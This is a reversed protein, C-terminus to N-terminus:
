WLGLRVRLTNNADYVLLVTDKIELRAGSQASKFHGINASLASLNGISAKNIKAVDISGNQIYASNLYTGAPVNVGNVNQPSTYVTFLKRNNNPNGIYFQDANIGFRSTIRGNQLESILGYGSIVGNNDVTIAKVAKIGDISRTQETIKSSQNNLNTQLETTKTAETTIRGNVRDVTTKLDNLATASAKNAVDSSSPTQEWVLWRNDTWLRTYINSAHNDAWVTQKIRANNAKDVSVYIWNIVPANPNNSQKIFYNGQEKLNNLDTVTTIEKWKTRNDVSDLSAQLQTFKQSSANDKTTQTQKFSNLSADVSEILINTDEPAPSWDTAVNGRELKIHKYNVDATSGYELILSLFDKNALDPVTLTTSYRHYNTNVHVTAKTQVFGGSIRYCRIIVLIDTTTNAFADFSVTVKDGAQLEKLVPNTNKNAQTGEKSNQAVSKWQSGGNPRVKIENGESIANSVNNGFFSYWSTQGTGLKPESTQLLLNRGGVSLNSFKSNLETKALSLASNVDSVTREIQNLKGSTTSNATSFDSNLRTLRESLANDANSRAQQEATLASDSSRKNTNVKDDVQRYSATLTNIQQALSQEKNNLTQTLSTIKSNAEQKVANDASKYASTLEALKTTLAQEHNSLSNSLNNINSNASSLGTNFQNTLELKVTSISKTTDTDVQQLATIKATIDNKDNIQKAELETLKQATASDATARAQKEENVLANIEQNTLSKEWNSWITNTKTRTYRINPTNSQWLTQTVTNTDVGNVMVYLGGQNIPATPNNSAQLYHNGTAILTNLNVPTTHKTWNLKATLANFSASLTTNSQSLSETKTTLTNEVRRLEAQNNELTAKLTSLKQALNANETSHVQKFEELKANSKSIVDEYAPTWATAVNGLELKPKSLKIPQNTQINKVILKIHNVAKFTKAPTITKYFRGKFYETLTAPIFGVSNDLFTVKLELGVFSNNNLTFGDSDVDFSLTLVHLSTWFYDIPDFSLSYLENTRSAENASVTLTRDSDLILNRGGVSINGLGTQLVNVQQALAERSNSITRELQTIKSLTNNYNSELVNIKHSATELLNSKTQIEQNVKSIATLQSQNLESKVQNIKTSLTGQLTTDVQELASIKGKANGLQSELDAIRTAQAQNSNAITQRVESIKALISKGVQVKVENLQQAIAENNEVIVTNIQSISASLQNKSVELATISQKHTDTNQKLIGLDRISNRISNANNEIHEGLKNISAQVNSLDITVENPKVVGIIEMLKDRNIVRNVGREVLDDPLETPIGRNVLNRLRVEPRYNISAEQQEIYNSDLTQYPTNRDLKSLYDEVTPKPKITM